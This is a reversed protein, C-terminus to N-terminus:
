QQSAESRALDRLVHKQVKGTSTKPLGGTPVIRVVRPLKFGALRGRCFRILEEEFADPKEEWCAEEGLHNLVVYSMVTEGWKAHPRGVVAAEAVHPHAFVVAEVEVTSVNEGGTVIIDKKRDKVSVYQETDVTALDGSRFWGGEFAEETSEPAKLYGKMVTNGRICIEGMEESGPTVVRVADTSVGACLVEVDGGLLPTPVGQRAKLKAQEEEGLTAYEATKYVSTLCQGNTETLGYMHTVEFGLAETASLIAPPPPSGATLLQVPKATSGRQAMPAQEGPSANALMTLVTPAGGLHTVGEQQILEFIPGPRPARLCVQTGGAAPLTWPFHWGCCHFMPSVWLFVPIEQPMRWFLPTSAAQLYCGRHSYVVGKPRGGTGSTYNLAIADFEDEPHDLPEGPDGDLLLSAYSLFGAAMPELATCSSEDDECLIEVLLPWVKPHAAEAEHLLYLADQVIESFSSEFVLVKTEAHQLMFAFTGADLRTNVTHLVAGNAGPVGYHATLCEPSNTSFVTVTDGRTVGKHRLASALRKANAYLEHYSTSVGEFRVAARDPWVRAARELYTLPTLQCFNAERRELHSAAYISSARRHLHRGTTGGGARVGLTSTPWRQLISVAASESRVAATDLAQLRRGASAATGRLVRAAFSAM